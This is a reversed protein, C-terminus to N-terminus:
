LEFSISFVEYDDVKFYPHGSLYMCSVVQYFSYTNGIRSYSYYNQNCNSSIYLDYGNGFIPGSNDDLCIIEVKDKIIEHKTKYNLSFLFSGPADKFELEGQDWSSSNFGGFYHDDTKKSIVRVITLTPGKKDCFEHFKKAKYGDRSARYLLKTIIKNKGGFMSVLYKKNPALMILESEEFPKNSLIIPKNFAINELPFRRNEDANDLPGIFNNISLFFDAIEKSQYVKKMKIDQIKARLSDSVKTIDKLKVEIKSLDQILSEETYTRTFEQDNAHDWICLCCMFEKHKDCIFNIEKKHKSCIYSNEESKSKLMAKKYYDYPIHLSSNPIKFIKNEQFCMFKSQESYFKTTCFECYSHGCPLELPITHEDYPKNCNPCSLPSLPIEIM